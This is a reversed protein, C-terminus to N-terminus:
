RGAANLAQGLARRYDDFAQLDGHGAGAVTHLTAGPMLRLLAQSHALPILRDQDGHVLLVRLGTGALPQLAQDTRLPYRLLPSPVYPYQEAAMAVMSRYPSVLLLLAPRQAPPLSAALEAALGTGLSRGLLVIPRGAYAPTVQNWSARVDAQLQDQSHVRGSSKGFGRYDLMFVDYNLSRYFDLDVFWRELNGANGHLFFVLGRAGPRQLQLGHLRAGPVDIFVEHADPPLTYRHDAPLPTPRFILSEQQWWLWGLLAAYVALALGVLGLLARRWFRRTM